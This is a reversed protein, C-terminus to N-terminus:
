KVGEKKEPFYPAWKLTNVHKGKDVYRCNVCYYNEKLKRFTM